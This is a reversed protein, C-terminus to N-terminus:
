VVLYVASVLLHSTSLLLLKFHDASGPLHGLGTTARLDAGTLPAATQRQLRKLNQKLFLPVSPGQLLLAGCMYPPISGRPALLHM